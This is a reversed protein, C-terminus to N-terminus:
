QRHISHYINGNASLILMNGSFFRLIYTRIVLWLCFFVHAFFCTWIGANFKLLCCLTQLEPSFASVWQNSLRLRVDGPRELLPLPSAPWEFLGTLEEHTNEPRRVVECFPDRGCFSLYTRVTESQIGVVYLRQRRLIFIYIIDKYVLSNKTTQGATCYAVINFIYLKYFCKTSLM